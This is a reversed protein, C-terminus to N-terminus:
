SSDNTEHTMPQPQLYHEKLKNNGFLVVHLNSISFIPSSLSKFPFLNTKRIDTFRCKGFTNIELLFPLLRYHKKFLPLINQQFHKATM